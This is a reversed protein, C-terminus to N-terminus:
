VRKQWHHEHRASHVVTYIVVTDQLVRYVIRYPFPWPYSWRVQFRRDRVPHRFPNDPLSSMSKHVKRLFEAGLGPRQREYWMEAERLDADVEPRVVLRFSV